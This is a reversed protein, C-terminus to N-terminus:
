VERALFASRIGARQQNGDGLLDVPSGGNRAEVCDGDDATAM